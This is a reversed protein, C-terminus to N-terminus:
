SWSKRVYVKDSPENAQLNRSMLLLDLLDIRSDEAVTDQYVETPEEFIPTSVDQFIADPTDASNRQQHRKRIRNIRSFPLEWASLTPDLLWDQTPPGELLNIVVELDNWSISKHGVVLEVEPNLVVEQVVWTRLWWPRRLIASLASLRESGRQPLDNSATRHLEFSSRRHRKCYAALQEALQMGKESNDYDHGLWVLVRRAGTFIRGMMRVQRNRELVNKQNICIQDIWLTVVHDQDRFRKLAEHLTETVDLLRGDCLISKAQRSTGWTYSLADYPPHEKQGDEPRSVWSHELIISIRQSPRAPQLKVLRIGNEANSINRYRYRSEQSSM